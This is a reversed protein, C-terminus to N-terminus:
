NEKTEEDETYNSTDIERDEVEKSLEKEDEEFLSLGLNLNGM